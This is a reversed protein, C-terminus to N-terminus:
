GRQRLRQIQENNLQIMLPEPVKAVLMEKDYPYETYAICKICSPDGQCFRVLDFHFQSKFHKKIVFEM